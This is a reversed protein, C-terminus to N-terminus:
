FIVVNFVKQEETREEVAPVSERNKFAEIVEEVLDDVNISVM